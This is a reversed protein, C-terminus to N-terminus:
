RTTTAESQLELSNVTRVSYSHVSDATATTDTFQMQPLPLEPTDHYSMTQFLARGFRGVPKEPIQAIQKGDREVIFGRIGSEIDANATWTIVLSGGDTRTTAVSTPASPPTSDAIAGTEIYEQQKPGMIVKWDDVADLTPKLQGTVQGADPLRHQLWFDFFPISFYRSDGCEHGTRLDPAFEFFPAGKELYAKQMSKIGDWAVHFREDDREKVGPNGMVPVNYAAHPIDPVAIEGKIWYGFATGSRLWVAVIREPYKVQMLSAWFAGGSHGWLCWPVANLEAHGSSAAFHDLAQLFRQESGDRPDCWLRCNVGDRPEYMSGMLACNWKRALAQWHLDDAATQGGRCAGEGCGHQHVIIGRLQKVDDPIWLYYDVMLRLEGPQAVSAYHIQHVTGGTSARLSSIPECAEKILPQLQLDIESARASAAELSLGDTMGPRKHGIRSLWSDRLVAAKQDILQTMQDSIPMWSEVDCAKLFVEAITRHGTSNCHVGDPAVTFEPDVKRQQEWFATIPTHLDIVMEVHDKQELIWKGYRKIVQDYNEYVAFWAYKDSGEPLLKGAAKVPMADFPPPTMLVLKAGSAHVKQILRSIGDQYEQFRDESFPYYIGDNMGYCAVVVDPQVAALARDLREHIDPRPFPHDPESLGSCTESPLGANVLEPVPDVSQLRLQLEIMNVFGGAHTISDGLFLIRSARLPFADDAASLPSLFVAFCILGAIPKM